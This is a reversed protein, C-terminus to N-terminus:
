NPLKILRVYKLRSLFWSLPLMGISNPLKTKKTLHSITFRKLFLCHKLILDGIFGLELDTETAKGPEYPIFKFFDSLESETILSLATLNFGIRGGYLRQREIAKKLDDKSILGKKVVRQGLRDIM